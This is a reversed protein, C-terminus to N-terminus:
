RLTVSIELQREPGYSWSPRLVTLRVNDGPAKDLMAILLDATDSLRQGDLAIITDGVLVGAAGAASDDVLSAVRVSSNVESTTLGLTGASPLEQTQQFLMVDAMDPSISGDTDNLVIASSLQVRRILRSPIGDGYILHGGGTLVVMHIGPHIKLYEAARSAMGEDWLLQADLFNEFGHFIGPPHLHYVEDVRQRYRLNERNIEAPIWKREEGALSAFGGLAVKHSIGDPVNLAVIPIHNDHAFRLIPRFLRYDFHSSQFFRTRQLMTKEDITGAVYDDLVPQYSQSFLEMAIVLDPHVQHIRRAIDLEALHDAYHDHAEGVFVVQKDLLKPMLADLTTLAHLDLATCCSAQQQLAAAHLSAVGFLISVLCALLTRKM